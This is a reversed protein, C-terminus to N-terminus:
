GYIINENLNVAGFLMSPQPSRSVTAYEATYVLDRRYLLANQSQDYSTTAKYIVRALTQDPLTLFRLEAFTSDIAAAVADRIPPSSCWCTIRLDKEQRRSELSATGDRVVRVVISNAGPITIINGKVGAIRMTQILANLNSAVLFPTDGSQVRYAFPLGDVLAGVLDGETPNGLISISSATTTASVGPVAVDSTWESLYRTTTKGSDNVADITVNVAGANLDANLTAPNPWGRYVRCLTGIASSKTTGEPYLSSVVTNAFTQEVDSLDAM